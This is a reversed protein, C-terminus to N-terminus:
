EAIWIMGDTTMAPGNPRRTDAVPERVGDALVRSVTGRRPDLEVVMWTGDSLLLPGEPLAVDSSLITPNEEPTNM